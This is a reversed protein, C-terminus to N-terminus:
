YVDTDNFLVCHIEISDGYKDRIVDTFICQNFRAKDEESLRELVDKPEIYVSLGYM